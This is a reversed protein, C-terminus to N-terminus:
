SKYKSPRLKRGPKFIYGLFDFGRNIKGVFKKEPHLALNLSAITENLTKIAKRLHWRTKSLIICDDMYRIYFFIGSSVHQQMARDLPLLYLAGLLPSISGGAVIGKGTNLYDPMQVYDCVINFLYDCGVETKFLDLL